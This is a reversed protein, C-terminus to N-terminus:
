LRTIPYPDPSYQSPTALPGDTESIEKRRRESQAVDAGQPFRYAPAILVMGAVRNERGGGGVGPRRAARDIGMSSGTGADTAGRDGARIM